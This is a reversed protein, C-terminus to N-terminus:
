ERGRDLLEEMLDRAASTSFAETQLAGIGAWRVLIYACDACWPDFPEGPMTRTYIAIESARIGGGCRACSDTTDDPRTVWISRYIRGPRLDGLV